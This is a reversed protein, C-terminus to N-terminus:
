ARAEAIWRPDRWLSATDDWALDHGRVGDWQIGALGDLAADPLGTTVVLTTGDADSIEISGEGTGSEVRATLLARIWGAVLSYPDAVATRGFTSGFSKFFGDIPGAVSIEIVWPMVDTGRRETLRHVDAGIGYHALVSKIASAEDAGAEGEIAVSLVLPEVTM